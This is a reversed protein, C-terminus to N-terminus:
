RYTQQLSFIALFYLVEFSPSCSETHLGKLKHVLKINSMYSKISDPSLKKELAAWSVFNSMTVSDIPLKFTLGKCECFIKYTNLASNIKKWSAEAYAAKVLGQHPSNEGLIRWIKPNDDAISYKIRGAGSNLKSTIKRIYCM